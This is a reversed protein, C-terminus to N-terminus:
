PKRTHDHHWTTTRVANGKLWAVGETRRWAGCMDGFISNRENLYLWVPALSERELYATFWDKDFLAVTEGRRSRGYKFRVEGCRDNYQGGLQLDKRLDLTKLLWPSPLLESHGDHLSLDLHSEWHYESVPFARAVTAGNWEDTVWTDLEWTPRWHAELLYPGDTFERPDWSHIDLRQAKVISQVFEEQDTQHVIVLCVFRFEERRNSRTLESDSETGIPAESSQHEYGTLWLLGEQDVRTILHDLEHGREKTFPWDYTDDGKPEVVIKPEGMWDAPAPSTDSQIITPDIDRFFGADPPYQYQRTDGGYESMWYNDALKCALEDLAIWQYKKGLREIRPRSRDHYISGRSWPFNKSARGLQYARRAVWLQARETNIRRHDSNAKRTGFGLYARADSLYRQQEDEILLRRFAQEADIVAIQRLRRKEQTIDPMEDSTASGTFIVRIEPATAQQLARWADRRNPFPQVVERLFKNFLNESTVLPSSKLRSATFRRVAPEIEYHGFDGWTDCSHLITRDATKKALEEIQERTATLRPPSSSYPPNCQEVPFDPPLVGSQEALQILGRGCDRLLLNEPVSDALFLKEAALRAYERLRETDPDICAAGYAAEFLREWVYLDDVGKFKLLLHDFLRSHGVLLNALAKTARDRVPRNSLTFLWTLTISCLDVTRPDALKIEPRLCWDILRHVSHHDDSCEINLRNSWFADRKHMPKRKLNRHILEANWPHNISASLGILTSFPSEYLQNFLDLTRDTFASASRWRISELFSDQAFYVPWWERSGGPLIDVLERGFREPLQIALAEVLGRWEWAFEKKTRVFSLPGDNSFATQIDTIDALLADAMLHDQFRQFSFQVVDLDEFSDKAEDLNPNPDVRLLGNRCLVDLWTLGEPPSFPRFCDSIVTHARDVKIYSHRESAMTRALEALSRKMPVLLEDSGDRGVGLNRGVSDLYFSMIAKTGALGRPFERLGARELANCCSRLFLPNIFEPALWPTAPRSIGRKDLYVRAAAAQEDDTEFGQVKVSQLTKLVEKPILYKLYESRCALVVVISPYGRIKALFEAIETRWLRAGAGENIADVLLLARTRKARAIAELAGLFQEPTVTPLGLKLLLQPWLPQDRLQQGVWLVAPRGESVSCDVVRALLHSKGTGATGHFLISATRGFLLVTKEVAEDLSALAAQLKSLQRSEYSFGGADEECRKRLEALIRQASSIAGTWKAQDWTQWSQDRLEIECDLVKTLAAHASKLLEQPSNHQSFTPFSNERFKSFREELSTIARPHKILVDFIDQLHVHVHDKPSYREDLSAIASEAHQKFWAASFEIEGFWYTLLGEANPKTLQDRLSFETWAIFEIRLGKKVAEAEWEKRHKEWVGWAGESVRGSGLDKRGTFDCPMAIVYRILNPYLRLATQVSTDVSSWNIDGVATYFKAQYGIIGAETIEICEVGGDGGSGEIRKFQDPSSSQRFALQCLLEEFAGRQGNPFDARIRRFDIPTTMPTLNM